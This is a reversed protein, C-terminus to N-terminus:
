QGTRLSSGDAGSQLCHKLLFGCTMLPPVAWFPKLTM